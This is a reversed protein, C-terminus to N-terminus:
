PSVSVAPMLLFATTVVLVPAAMVIAPASTEHRKQWAIVAFWCVWIPVLMVLWAALSLALPVRSHVAKVLLDGTLWAWPLASLLVVFACALQTFRRPVRSM